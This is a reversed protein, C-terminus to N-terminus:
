APTYSLGTANSQRVQYEEIFHYVDKEHATTGGRRTMPSCAWEMTGSEVQPVWRHFGYSPVRNNQKVADGRLRALIKSARDVPDLASATADIWVHFTITTTVADTQFTDDETDFTDVTIYPFSLTQSGRSAYIGTILPTSSRFLGGSGTDGEARDMIARLLSALNSSV